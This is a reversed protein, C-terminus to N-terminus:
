KLVRASTRTRTKTSPGPVVEYRKPQMRNGVPTGPTVVMLEEADEGQLHEEEVLNVVV